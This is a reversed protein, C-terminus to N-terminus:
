SRGSGGFDGCSGLAGREAGARATVACAATACGWASAGGRAGGFVCDRNGQCVEGEGGDPADGEQTRGGRAKRRPRADVLHLDRPFTIVFHLITSTSSQDWAGRILEIAVKASQRGVSFAGEFTDYAWQLGRRNREQEREKEREKRRPPIYVSRGDFRARGDQVQVFGTGRRHQYRLQPAV